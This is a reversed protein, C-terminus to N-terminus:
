RRKGGPLAAPRRGGSPAVPIRSAVPSGGRSAGGRASSRGRGGREARFGGIVLLALLVAAAVLVIMQKDPTVAAAAHGSRVATTAHSLASGAQVPSHVAESLLSTLSAWSLVLAVGLVLSLAPTRIRHHLHRRVVEHWFSWLGCLDVIGLVITGANGAIARALADLLVPVGITLLFGALLLMVCTFRPMKQYAWTWIGFAAAGIGLFAVPTM